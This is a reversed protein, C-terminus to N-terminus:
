ATEDTCARDGAEEARIMHGLVILLVDPRHISIALAPTSTGGRSRLAAIQAARDPTATSAVLKRVHNRYLHNGFTGTVFTIGISLLFTVAGAGPSAAGIIALLTSVVLIAIMPLWMKRWAFWFVNALCAAWNWSAASNKADMKQWKDLYWAARPGVAAEVLDAEM